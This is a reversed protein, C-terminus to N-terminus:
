DFGDGPPDDPVPRPRHCANTAGVLFIGYAALYILGLDLNDLRCAAYVTLIIAGPTVAHIALSLLQRYTLANPTGRQLFNAAISFLWAQCLAGALGLLLLAVIATPIGLWLLGRFLQRLYDGNVQGDPFGQLRQAPFLVLQHTANTPRVWVRITDATILVGQAATLANTAIPVATDLRLQFKENGALFPQPLDTTVQGDRLQFAPGHQDYWRAIDEGRQRLWPITALVFAVVLLTLLKALYRFAAGPTLDLVARYGTFGTCLRFVQRFFNM